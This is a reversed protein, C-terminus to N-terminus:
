FSNPKYWMTSRSLSDGPIGMCWFKEHGVWLSKSAEGAHHKSSSIGSTVDHLIMYLSKKNKNFKERSLELIREIWLEASSWGWWSWVAVFYLGLSNSHMLFVYPKRMWIMNSAPIMSPFPGLIWLSFFKRVNHESRLSARSRVSFKEGKGLVSAVINFFM